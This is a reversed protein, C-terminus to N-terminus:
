PVDNGTLSCFSRYRVLVLWVYSRYLKETGLHQIIFSCLLFQERERKIFFGISVTLYLDYVCASFHDLCIERKSHFISVSAKDLERDDNIFFRTFMNIGDLLLDSLVIGDIIVSMFLGDLHGHGLVFCASHEKCVNFVSGSIYFEKVLFM